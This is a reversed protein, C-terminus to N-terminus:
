NKGDKNCQKVNWKEGTALVACYPNQLAFLKNMTTATTHSVQMYTYIHVDGCVYMLM